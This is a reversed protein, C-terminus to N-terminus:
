PSPPTHLLPGPDLVYLEDNFYFIKDIEWVGVLVVFIRSYHNTGFGNKEREPCDSLLAYKGLTEKERWGALRKGEFCLM